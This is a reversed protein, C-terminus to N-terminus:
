AAPQALNGALRGCLELATRAWGPSASALGCVPTIVLGPVRDSDAFGIARLWGLLRDTLFADTVQEAGPPDTAPVVGPWVAHGADIWAAVDDYRETPLLSLDFSVAQVSTAQLVDLPVDAACCHVVTDAGAGRAAEVVWGLDRAAEADGVSRHRHFGSATPVQGTLVAPLLPEDVQVVVHAASLRRGIDAVHGAVGEALAQAVDRRAGHDALVKDGRPREVTAALTWPGVVQVKLPGRHSQAAEEVRDLDEALLSIARRHDLGSADTFRWGAPQLDAGLERVVALTRGVMSAIPGRAPLEPLFPLDGVEGLVVQVAEAFDTGPMSGIGSALHAM